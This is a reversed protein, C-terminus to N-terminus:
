GQCLFVKTRWQFLPNTKSSSTYAWNISSRYLLAAFPNLYFDICIGLQIVLQSIWTMESAVEVYPTFPGLYEDSIDTCRNDGTIQLFVETPWQYVLSPSTNCVEALGVHYELIMSSALSLVLSRKKKKKQMGLQSRFNSVCSVVFSPIQLWFFCFAPPVWGIPCFGRHVHLFLWCKLAHQHLTEIWFPSGFGKVEVSAAWGVSNGWINAKPRTKFKGRM